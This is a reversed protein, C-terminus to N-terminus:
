SVLCQESAARRTRAAAIADIVNRGFAQPAHAGAFARLSASGSIASVSNILRLWDFRMGATDAIAFEGWQIGLAHKKRNREILGYGATIVPVGAQASQILVGSMGSFNEYCLWVVDACAFVQGEEVDTVFRDVIVLQMEREPHRSLFESVMRQADADQSGVLLLRFYPPLDPAGFLTLLKKLGKRPSLSGYSVVVFDTASFGYTARASIRECPQRISSVDPVYRFKRSHRPIAHHVYSELPEDISTLMGLNPVRLALRFLLENIKDQKGSMGAVGCKYHHFRAAVMMGGFLVDGFPSGYWGVVKDIYNFYPLYVFDVRDHRSVERYGAQFARISLYQARLLDFQGSGGRAVDPMLVVRLREGFESVVAKCAPHLTASASTLLIVRWGRTLAEAVILRVYLIMRHGTAEPEVLMLTTM